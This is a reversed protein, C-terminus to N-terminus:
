AFASHLSAPISIRASHPVPDGSGIWHLVSRYGRENLHIAEDLDHVIKVGAHFGDRLRKCVVVGIAERGSAAKLVPGYLQEIQEHGAETWTYKCELVVLKGSRALLFDTQCYRIESSDKFQFWQGHRAEPLWKAFQAEYRLGAQKAKGRPRALPIVNPRPCSRAWEVVGRVASTM